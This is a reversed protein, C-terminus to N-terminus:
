VACRFGIINSWINAEILRHAINVPCSTTWCGGKLIYVPRGGSRVSKHLTSTWEYVNGLLDCIGFPSTGERESSDISATGGLQSTGFNGLSNHWDRGWPYPNTTNGKAAAEWEEETPLRKGAWASFALADKHSVQVVPHSHKGSISGGKPGAPYRWCAGDIRNASAGKRITLTQRGSM